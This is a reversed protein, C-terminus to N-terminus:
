EQDIQRLMASIDSESAGVATASAQGWWELKGSGSGSRFGRWRSDTIRCTAWESDISDITVRTTCEGLNRGTKTKATLWMRVSLDVSTSTGRTSWVKARLTCGSATCAGFEVQQARPLASTDFSSKLEGVRTRLEGVMGDAGSGTLETVDAALRPYATEIRLLRPNDGTSLYYADGFTSIKLASRGQVTTRATKYTSFASAQQLKRALASPTVSTRFYSSVSYSPLRGWVGEIEAPVGSSGIGGEARWFAADGQAFVKDDLMLVKSQNGNWTVDGSIRGSKTVKLRGQMQDTGSNVSGNLEVGRATTLSTAASALQQQPSKGSGSGSESFAGVLALLVAVVLLVVFGGGIILGVILGTRSSRPPTPSPGWPQPSGPGGMGPMGPMGPGPMGPGHPGPGHPGPGPM